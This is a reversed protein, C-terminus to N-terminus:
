HEPGASTSALLALLLALCSGAWIAILGVQLYAWAGLASGAVLAAWLLV